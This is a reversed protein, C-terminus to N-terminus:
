IMVCVKPEGDLKQCFEMWDWRFFIDGLFSCLQRLQRRLQEEVGALSPSAQHANKTPDKYPM